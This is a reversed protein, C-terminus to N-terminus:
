IKEIRHPLTKKAEDLIEHVKRGDEPNCFHPAIEALPVLVFLRKGFEPHPIKLLDMKVIESGFFIIDIDLTRPGFNIERVRGLDKEVMNAYRLLSLASLATRGVVAINIFDPQFKIKVPETRYFSSVEMDDVVKSLEKLADRINRKSDGVNSGLSLAVRVGSMERKEETNREVM